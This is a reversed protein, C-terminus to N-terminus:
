WPPLPDSVIFAMKRLFNHRLHPDNGDRLREVYDNMEACIADHLQVRDIVLGEKPDEPDVLEMLSPLGYRIRSRGKVQAQHLLGCRFHRYFVNSIATERLDGFFRSMNFFSWFVFKAMGPPTEDIGFRFQSLTEILLCDLAVVTFGCFELIAFDDHGQIAEIPMLFRGRMRDHFVDVGRDWDGGGVNLALARWDGAAYRPAIMTENPIPAM